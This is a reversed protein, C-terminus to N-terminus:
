LPSCPISPFSPFQLPTGALEPPLLVNHSSARLSSLRHPSAGTPRMFLMFRTHSSSKEGEAFWKTLLHWIFISGHVRTRNNKRRPLKTSVVFPEAASDLAAKNFAFFSASALPKM